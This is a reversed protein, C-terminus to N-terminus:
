ETDESFDDDEKNGPFISDITTKGLDSFPGALFGTAIGALAAGTKRGNSAISAVATAGGIVGKSTNRVANRVKENKIVKETVGDILGGVFASASGTGIVIGREVKTGREVGDIEDNLRGVKKELSDGRKLSKEIVSMLERKSSSKNVRALKTGPM